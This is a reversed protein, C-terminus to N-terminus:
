QAGGLFNPPGAGIGPSFSTALARYLFTQAKAIAEELSCGFALFTAIAASLTCGTGHNNPTEVRAHHMAWPKADPLCLWDTMSHKGEFGSFHGGKLLVARAGLTFLKEAARRVDNEDEIPMGALLEAEPKNPTLLDALPLLLRRLVDEADENLLRHGSQSVCVPDVVLAFDKDALAQTVGEIIAASALMGTKASRLCFGKRVATLQLLVFDVPVEHIGLVGAGNQATLAACVSTAHAGLVTMTKIDAQIGAGGGSDSGAITLVAPHGADIDKHAATTM